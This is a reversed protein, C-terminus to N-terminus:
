IKVHSSNLRTSKRDLGYDRALLKGVGRLNGQIFAHPDPNSKSLHLLIQYIAEQDGPNGIGQLLSILFRVNADSQLLLAESSVISIPLADHLSLPYLPR